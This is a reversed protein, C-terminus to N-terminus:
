RIPSSAGSPSPAPVLGSKPPGMEGHSGGEPHRAARGEQPRRGGLAPRAARICPSWHFRRRRAPCALSRHTVSSPASRKRRPSTSASRSSARTGSRRKTNRRLDRVANHSALGNGQADAIISGLSVLGEQHVGAVTGEHPPREQVAHNGAREHRLTEHSRPLSSHPAQCARRLDERHRAGARGEGGGEAM